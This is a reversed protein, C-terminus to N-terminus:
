LFVAIKCEMLIALETGPSLDGATGGANSGLIRLDRSFDKSLWHAFVRVSTPSLFEIM